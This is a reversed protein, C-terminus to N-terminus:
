SQLNGHKTSLKYSYGFDEREIEECLAIAIHGTQVLSGRLDNHYCQGSPASLGYVRTNDGHLSSDSPISPWQLLDLYSFGFWSPSLRSPSDNDQNTPEPRKYNRQVHVSPLM